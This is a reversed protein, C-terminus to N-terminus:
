KTKKQISIFNQILLRAIRRSFAGPEPFGGIVAKKAVLAAWGVVVWDGCHGHINIYISNSNDSSYATESRGSISLEFVFTLSVGSSASQRYALVSLPNVVQLSVFHMRLWSCLSLSSLSALSVKLSLTM